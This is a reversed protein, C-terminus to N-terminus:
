GRYAYTPTVIAAFREPGKDVMVKWGVRPEAQDFILHPDGVAKADFGFYQRVTEQVEPPSLELIDIPLERIAQGTHVDRRPLRSIRFARPAHEDFSRVDFFGVVRSYKRSFLPVRWFGASGVAVRYGEIFRPEEVCVDDPDLPQKLSPRIQTDFISRAVAHRTHSVVGMNHGKNIM